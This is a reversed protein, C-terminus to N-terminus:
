STCDQTAPMTSPLAQHTVDWPDLLSAICMEQAWKRKGTELQTRAPSVDTVDAGSAHRSGATIGVQFRLTCRVPHSSHGHETVQHVQPQPGMLCRGSAAFFV